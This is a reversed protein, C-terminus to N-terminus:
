DARLAQVPDIQAARQAPVWTAVATVIALVAAVISLSLPDRPSIGFLMSAIVRSVLLALVLGIGLGVMAPRIGQAVVLRVVSGPQAGLAIRVGIERTRQSVSYSAVGYIGVCTLVLAVFAFTTLLIMSFRRHGLSRSVVDSMSAIDAVPLRPDADAIAHRLAAAAVSPDNARVVFSSLATGMGKAQSHSVWITQRLQSQDLSRDRLDAVVGIIESATVKEKRRGRYVGIYIRRGIPNEDPFLKAAYAKSVIVVPPSARTDTEAFDRGSLLKIDMAQFYGPSVARWETGGISADDRGEVTSPINWGRTLPLTATSAAAQIGPTTRLEGLVRQDFRWVADEDSYSRPTQSIHATYVGERRFGGDVQLVRVFSMILLGAGCLLVMALAAEIAVLTARLKGRRDGVGSGRASAALSNALDIRTTMMAVVFGIAISAVTAILAVYLVVRWDLSLQSERAFLQMGLTSIWRVSFLSAVTACMASAVGLVLMELLIQRVISARGAGLATRVAFERQRGIARALVINVVNACALLFVFATAGLFIWLMKALSGTFVHQFDIVAVGLDGEDVATPYQERFRAFVSAMDADIQAQTVNLRLKGVATYNAGGDNLDAPTLVLPLFVDPVHQQEAIEFTRPLVGVITYRTSDLRLSKGVADRDGGFKRKWLGDSIVAIPAADAAYDGAILARGLAPRAGLVKLFDPTVRTGEVVDTESGDIGAEFGRSTALGDFIRSQDHWFQFRRPTVAGVDLGYSRQMGLYVIRDADPYPLPHLVIRDVAHFIAATTGIGLTLTAIVVLAFVPQRAVSRAAFRVDKILTDLRDRLSRRRRRGRELRVVEAEIRAFDGFRRRAERQAEDPSLGSAILEDVRGAVHFELEADVDSRARKPSNSLRFVRRLNPWRDSM